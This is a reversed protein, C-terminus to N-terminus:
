SANNGGRGRKLNNRVRQIMVLLAFFVIAVVAISPLDHLQRLREAWSLHSETPLSLPSSSPPPPDPVFFKQAQPGPDPLNFPACSGEFFKEADIWRDSTSGVTHGYVESSNMNIRVASMVFGKGEFMGCTGSSLSRGPTDKTIVVPVPSDPKELLKQFWGNSIAVVALLALLAAILINKFM